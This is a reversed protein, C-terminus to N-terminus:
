THQAEHVCEYVGEHGQKPTCRVEVHHSVHHDHACAEEHCVKGADSPKCQPSKHEHRETESSM